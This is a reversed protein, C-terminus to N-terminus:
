YLYLKKKERVVTCQHNLHHLEAIGDTAKMIVRLTSDM